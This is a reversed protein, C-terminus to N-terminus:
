SKKDEDDIVANHYIAQVDGLDELYDTIKLLKEKDTLTSLTVPNHPIWTLEAVQATGFSQELIDKLVIFQEVSSTIECYDDIEQIDEAGGDIAKEMLAAVNYADKSAYVILGKHSFMWSVSGETGLSGGHRSFGYRVESVTRNINDTLCYVLIAINGPAFGEYYKEKYDQGQPLSLGRKINREIIDKPMNAGRAKQIAGRLRPNAAADEGGLRTAVQLEIGIKSFIKARKQDQSGKRHQINKWKSHGAM